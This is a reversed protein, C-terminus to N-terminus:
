DASPKVLKLEVEKGQKFGKVEEAPVRYLNLMPGNGPERLIVDYLQKQADALRKSFLIYKM